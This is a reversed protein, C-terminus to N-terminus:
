SQYGEALTLVHQRACRVAEEVAQQENRMRTLTAEVELYRGRLDRARERAARLDKVAQALERSETPTTRTRTVAKTARAKKKAAM